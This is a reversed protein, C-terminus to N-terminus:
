GVKEALRDDANKITDLKNSVDVMNDGQLTTYKNECALENKMASQYAQDQTLSDIFTPRTADQSGKLYTLGYQNRANKYALDKELKAKILVV